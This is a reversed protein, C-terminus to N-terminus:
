ASCIYCWWRGGRGGVVVWGLQGGGGQFRGYIITNFSTKEYKLGVSVRFCKSM